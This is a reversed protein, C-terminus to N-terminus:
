RVDMERDEAVERVRGRAVLGFVLGDQGRGLLADFGQGAAQRGSASVAEEEEEPRALPVLALAGPHAPLPLAALDLFEVAQQAPGGVGAVGDLEARELDQGADALADRQVRVR